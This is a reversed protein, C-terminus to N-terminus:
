SPVTTSCACRRDGLWAIIVDLERVVRLGPLSTDAVLAVCEHTLTTSSPWLGPVCATPSRIRCFTSALASQNEAPDDTTGQHGARMQERWALSNAATGRM